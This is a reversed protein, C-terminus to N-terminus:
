PELFTEREHLLFSLELNPGSNPSLNPGSHDSSIRWARLQCVSFGAGTYAAPEHLLVIRGQLCAAQCTHQWCPYFLLVQLFELFSGRGWCAKSCSSAAWSSDLCCAALRCFHPYPTSARPISWVAWSHCTWCAPSSHSAHLFLIPLLPTLSGHSKHAWRSAQCHQQGGPFSAKGGGWVPTLPYGLSSSYSFLVFYFYGWAM